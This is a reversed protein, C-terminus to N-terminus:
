QKRLKALIRETIALLAFFIWLWGSVDFFASTKTKIEEIGNVPLLEELAATRKDYKEIEKELRKYFDFIELLQESFHEEIINESTLLRTHYFLNRKPGPKIIDHALSDPKFVLLKTSTDPISDTRLWIVLGFRDLNLTDISQAKNIEISRNTYKSIAKLSAEIYKAQGSLSDEYNLLVEISSEISLPLEEEKENLSFFVSDNAKNFKFLKNDSALLEKEFSTHQNSSSVSFLAIENEKKTAQLVKKTVVEADIIVWSIKKNIKPRAGKIGSVFANAFVVISDTQLTEMEKALQWYRPVEINNGEFEDVQYEPFSTQLLRVSPGTELTDIIAQIRTDQLLSPEIIYTIPIKDEKKKVSPGAIIIVLLGILLLRLFLLVWENLQISSSKKSDTESFLKTSGVKITKGEKKSWLHIAIPVLLGLLAWLYTPNLFFM